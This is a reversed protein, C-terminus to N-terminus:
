VSEGALVRRQLAATEEDPEVGLEAVLARRCALYQRLAHGRQGARAYAAILQRHAAENVPDLEVLRRAVDAAAVLDGADSHADILAGLVEAHRDVLRQRWPIAWDSYREEPLPEGGWLAAAATLAARRERGTGGLAVAAAREFEYADVSDHPGLSLRYSREGSALRSSVSGPTDLVGRAASVAVQLSRRGAGAPRDPWFAEILEDESVPEGGRCLLLRVLRAAVRRKWEGEDVVWAGRRLEFSAFVQFRLPPPDQRLREAAARAAAAVGPDPDSEFESLRDIGAPHGAAVASLLAGTRVPAVPHRTFPELAAGGPLVDALADVAATPDVVGRELAAWLPREVRPWERRVVHRAQDGAEEWAAGLAMASGSEDGEEYLLWALVARLRAGSFGPPRVALSEEVLARAHAPQGARVLVPALVAACRMREFWPWEDDIERAARQAAARAERVQGRAVAVSARTADIEWARRAHWEPGVGALEAEASALDGRRAQLSAIRISTGAGLWGALGTEDALARGRAAMALADEDEGREEHIAFKFLLVYPLRGFPDVREFAAIAQDIHALADDLRGAPLDVYYGEFTPTQDRLPAAVPDAFARELLARGDDFRGQGALAIAALAGVARATLDGEADSDDLVAGLEGAGRLDGEALCADALAFCAMFRLFPSAGASEFGAVAARCHDVAEGLRGRGHELQGALLMLEPRRAHDAPMASLWRDVTEPARRVLTGGERAIAAAAADWDESAIREEVAEAGRGARDLADALRASVARREDPPVEDQFRRRLFDRFLPHFAGNGSDGSGSLFLGSGAGLARGPGLGAADALDLDPAMAATLLQRRRDPDLGGLVEEEFYGDLVGRSPGHAGPEAAVALVVGLPWGETRELLGDVEEPLADRGRALRLYAECDAVSFALDAPGLEAVRGAARQRALRLALRRRSAVAVRLGGESGVLRGVVALAAEGELTEADDLCVVLPDVLLAELERGLAAAAQEPDVPERAATMRDALVDVAGPLTRRISEIILEVLRGADGAADGCRVWAADRGYTALADRLATTKGFGADAVLLLSGRDLATRIRARLDARELVPAPGGSVTAMSVVM